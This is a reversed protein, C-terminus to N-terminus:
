KRGTSVKPAGFRAKEFEEAQTAAQNLVEDISQGAHIRSKLEEWRRTFPGDPELNGQTFREFRSWPTFHSELEWINRKARVYYAADLAAKETFQNAQDADQRLLALREKLKPSCRQSSRDCAQSWRTSANDLMRAKAGTSSIRSIAYTLTKFENAQALPAELSNLQCLDELASGVMAQGFFEGAFIVDKIKAPLNEPLDLTETDDPNGLLLTGVIAQIRDDPMELGYRIQMVRFAEHLILGAQSHIGLKPWLDKSVLAGLTGTYVAAPVIKLEPYLSQLKSSVERRGADRIPYTTYGFQLGYLAERLVQVLIPSSKEWAALYKKLLEYAALHDVPIRDFGTVELRRTDPLSQGREASETFEPNVHLLDLLIPAQGEPLQVVTGGGSSIGGQPAASVNGGIAM